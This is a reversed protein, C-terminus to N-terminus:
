CEFRSRLESLPVHLHRCYPGPLGRRIEGQIWVWERGSHLSSAGDERPALKKGRQKGAKSHAWGTAYFQRAGTGYQTSIMTGNGDPYPVLWHHLFFEHYLSANVQQFLNPHRRVADRVKQYLLRFPKRDFYDRRYVPNSLDAESPGWTWDFIQQPQKIKTKNGKILNIANNLHQSFHDYCFRVDDVNEGSNASLVLEKSLAHLVDRRYQQLIIHVILEILEQQRAPDRVNPLWSVLRDIDASREHMQHSANASFWKVLKRDVGLMSEAIEDFFRLHQWDVVPAFWGFGSNTVSDKLGLGRTVEGDDSERVTIALETHQDLHTNFFNRLCRFLLRLLRTRELTIGTEPSTVVSMEILSVLKDYNARLFRIFTPTGVAWVTEPHTVLRYALPHRGEHHRAREQIALFLDWSVRVELRSGFSVNRADNLANKVRLKTAKFSEVLGERSKTNTVRASVLLAQYVLPDLALDDQREDRFPEVTQTRVATKIVDYAQLYRFGDRYLDCRKPPELRLCTADRLLGVNYFQPRGNSGEFARDQLGRLLTELCCTKWLYVTPDGGDVLDGHLPRSFPGCYERGIDAYLSEMRDNDLHLAEELQSQFESMTEKLSGERSYRSKVGKVNIFLFPSRFRSLDNRPDEIRWVVEDWVRNLVEGPIPHHPYRKTGRREKSASQENASARSNLDAVLYSPPLYPISGRGMEGFLAPSWAHNFFDATDRDSLAVFPKDPRYLWPFFILLASHPLGDVTGLYLHPIDKLPLTKLREDGNDDLYSIRKDIHIDSQLNQSLLKTPCWEFGRKIAGLTAPFALLSDIDFTTIPIAPEISEQEKHLCVNRVPDGPEALGEFAPRLAEAPTYDLRRRGRNSPFGDHDLGIEANRPGPHNMWDTYTVSLDHHNNAHRLEHETHIRAHEEATCGNYKGSLIDFLERASAYLDPYATEEMEVEAGEAAPDFEPDLMDGGLVPPPPTPGPDSAISLSGVAAHLSGTSEQVLQSEIEADQSPAYDDAESAAHDDDEEERSTHDNDEGSFGGWPEADDVSSSDPTHTSAPTSQGSHERPRGELSITISSSPGPSETGHDVPPTAPLDSPAAEIKREEGHQIRDRLQEAGAPFKRHRQSRLPFSVHDQRATSNDRRSLRNNTAAQVLFLRRAM